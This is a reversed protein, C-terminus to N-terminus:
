KSEEKVLLGKWACWVVDENEKMMEQRGARLFCDQCPPEEAENFKDDYYMDYFGYPDFYDYNCIVVSGDDRLYCISRPVFGM